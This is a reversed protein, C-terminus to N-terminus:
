SSRRSRSGDRSWWRAESCVLLEGPPPCVPTNDEAVFMLLRAFDLHMFEEGEEQKGEDAQLFALVDAKGYGGAALVDKVSTSPRGQREQRQNGKGKGAPRLHPYKSWCVDSPHDKTCHVCVASPKSPAHSFRCSAGRTCNGKKFQRCAEVETHDKATPRGGRNGEFTFLGQASSAHSGRSHLKSFESLKGAVITNRAYNKALSITQDYDLKKNFLAIDFHEFIDNPLTELFKLTRMEDSHQEKLAFLETHNSALYNIWQQLDSKGENEFTSDMFSKLLVKLRGGSEKKMFLDIQLLLGPADGYDVQQIASNYDAHISRKIDAFVLGKAEGILYREEEDRSTALLTIYERREVENVSQLEKQEKDWTQKLKAIKSPSLESGDEAYIKGDDARPPPPSYNIPLYLATQTVGKSKMTKTVLEDVKHKWHTHELAVAAAITHPHYISSTCSATATFVGWSTLAGNWTPTKEEWSHRRSSSTM